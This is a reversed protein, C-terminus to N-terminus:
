QTTMPNKAQRLFDEFDITKEKGDSFIIEIKYHSVDNANEIEILKKQM